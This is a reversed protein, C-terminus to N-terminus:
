RVQTFSLHNICLGDINTDSSRSPDSTLSMDARWFTPIEQAAQTNVPQLSWEVDYLNHPKSVITINKVEIEEQPTTWSGDAGLPSSTSWNSVLAANARPDCILSQADKASDQMMVRSNIVRFGSIVFTTIVGRAQSDFPTEQITAKSRQVQGYTDITNTKEVFMIMGLYHTLLTVALLTSVSGIVAVTWAVVDRWAARGVYKNWTARSKARLHARHAVFMDM